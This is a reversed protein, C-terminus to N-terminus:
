VCKLVFMLLSDLFILVANPHWWPLITLYTLHRINIFDTRFDQSPHSGQAFRKENENKDNWPRAPGGPASPIDPTLPPFTHEECRLVKSFWQLTVILQLLASWSSKNECYGHGQYQIYTKSLQKYNTIALAASLHWHGMHVFFKSTFNISESVWLSVWESVWQRM